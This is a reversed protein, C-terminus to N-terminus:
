PQEGGDTRGSESEDTTPLHTEYSERVRVLELFEEPDIRDVYHVLDRRQELIDTARRAVEGVDSVREARFVLREIRDLRDTVQRVKLLLAQYLGYEQRLRPLEEQIGSVEAEFRLRETLTNIKAALGMPDASTASDLNAQSSEEAAELRQIERGLEELRTELEYRREHIRSHRAWHQPVILHNWWRLRGLVSETVEKPFEGRRIMAETESTSVYARVVLGILLWAVQLGMVIFAVAAPLKMGFSTFVLGLVLALIILGIPPQPHAKEWHIRYEESTKECLLGFLSDASMVEERSEAQIM